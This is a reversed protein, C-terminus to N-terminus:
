GVQLQSIDDPYLVTVELFDNVIPRTHCL